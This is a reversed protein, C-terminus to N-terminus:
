LRLREMTVLHLLENKSAEHVCWDSFRHLSFVIIDTDYLTDFRNVATRIHEIDEKTYRKDLSDPFLVILTQSDVQVCYNLKLKNGDKFHFPVDTTLEAASPYLYPFLYEKGSMELFRFCSRYFAPLALKQDINELVYRLLGDPDSVQQGRRGYVFLCWAAIYSNTLHYTVSKRERLSETRVLNAGILAHLYTQCKNNPYGADRAIESLRQKGNAMACLIPYYSEPTRFYEGLWEPLFRSFASDYRLLTRLNEELGAHEDLEHLITLFGGTLSFLRLINQKAYAPFYKCYDALTRCGIYITALNFDDPEWNERICRRFESVIIRDRAIYLCAADFEKRQPFRELDDLLVHLTQNKYKKQFLQGAEEWSAPKKNELEFAAAFAALAAAGELDAFSFYRAKNKHTRVYAQTAATKGCGREGFIDLSNKSRQKERDFYRAKWATFIRSVELSLDLEM